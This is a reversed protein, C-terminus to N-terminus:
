LLTKLYSIVENFNVILTIVIAIVIYIMAVQLTTKLKSTQNDFYRNDM